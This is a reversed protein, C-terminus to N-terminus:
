LRKILILAIIIFFLNVGLLTMIIIQYKLDLMKFTMQERIAKNMSTRIKSRHETLANKIESQEKTLSQNLFAQTSESHKKLTNEIQETISEQNQKIHKTIETRNM